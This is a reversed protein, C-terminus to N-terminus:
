KQAAKPKVFFNIRGKELMMPPNRTGDPAEQSTVYIVTYPPLSDTCSVLLKAWDIGQKKGGYISFTGISTRWAQITPGFAPHTGTKEVGPLHLVFAMSCADEKDTDDTFPRCGMKEDVIEIGGSLVDSTIWTKKIRYFGQEVKANPYMKKAAEQLVDVLREMYIKRAEEISSAQDLPVYGYTANVATLPPTKFADGLLSIGLGIGFAAGLNSTGPLFSGSATFLNATWGATSLLVSGDSDFEVGEPAEVDKLPKFGPMFALNKARSLSPDYALTSDDASPRVSACGALIAVAAVTCALASFKFM